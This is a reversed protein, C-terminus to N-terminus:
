TDRTEWLLSMLCFDGEFVWALSIACDLYLMLIRSSFGCMGARGQETQFFRLGFREGWFGLGEVLLLIGLLWDVVRYTFM